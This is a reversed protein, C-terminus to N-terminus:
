SCPHFPWLCLHMAVPALHLPPPKPCKQACHWLTPMKPTFSLLTMFVREWIRTAGENCALALMSQSVHLPALKIPLTHTHALVMWVMPVKHTESTEWLPYSPIVMAKGLFRPTLGLSWLFKWDVELFQGWKECQIWTGRRNGEVESRIQYSKFAEQVDELDRSQYNITREWDKINMSEKLRPRFSLFHIENRSGLYWKVSTVRPQSCLVKNEAYFEHFGIGERARRIWGDKRTADFRSVSIVSIQPSPLNLRIFRHCSRLTFISKEQCFFIWQQTLTELNEQKVGQVDCWDLMRKGTPALLESHSITACVAVSNQAGQRWM